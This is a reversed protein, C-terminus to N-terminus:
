QHARRPQLSSVIVSLETHGEPTLPVCYDVGSILATARCAPLADDDTMGILTAQPSVTHIRRAVEVANAGPLDLELLVMDPKLGKAQGVGSEADPAEAVVMDPWRVSFLMSLQGRSVTDSDIILTAFRPRLLSEILGRIEAETSESKVMFYDAGYRLAANRHESVEQGAIACILSDAFFTRIAQTLIFEHGSQLDVDIFILDFHRSGVQRMAEEGDAAEVIQMSPFHGALLQHLSHRDAANDEVILTNLM